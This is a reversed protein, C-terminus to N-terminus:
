GRLIGRLSHFVKIGLFILSITFFVALYINGTIWNGIQSLLTGIDALIDSNIYSQTSALLSMM